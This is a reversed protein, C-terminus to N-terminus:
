FESSRVNLPLLCYAQPTCLSNHLSFPLFSIFGRPNKNKEPCSPSFLKVRSMLKFIIYLIQTLSFQLWNFISTSHMIELVTSSFFSYFISSFFDFSYLFFLFYSLMACVFCLVLCCILVFIVLRLFHPHKLNALQFFSQM